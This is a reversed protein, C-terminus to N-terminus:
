WRAFEDPVGTQENNVVDVRWYGFKAKVGSWLVNGKCSSGDPCKSCNWLDPYSTKWTAQPHHATGLDDLFNEEDCDSTVLWPDLLAAWLGVAVGNDIRVRAYVVLDHIPTDSTVTASSYSQNMVVTLNGNPGRTRPHFDPSLAVDVMPRTLEQERLENPYDWTLFLTNPYDRHTLRLLDSVIPITTDLIPDGCEIASAGSYENPACMECMQQGPTSQFTGPECSTCKEPNMEITTQPNTYYGPQCEMCSYVGAQDSLYEGPLCDEVNVNFTMENISVASAKILITHIGPFAAIGFTPFEALGNQDVLSFLNGFPQAKTSTAPVGAQLTISSSSSTDVVSNNYYDLVKVSPGFALTNKIKLTPPLPVLITSRPGSAIFRGYQLLFCTISCLDFFLLFCCFIRFLLTLVHYWCKVVFSNPLRVMATNNYDELELMIPEVGDGWYIGGGGGTTADNNEFICRQFSIPTDPDPVKGSLLIAGGKGAVNNLFLSTGVNLSACGDCVIAGGLCWFM